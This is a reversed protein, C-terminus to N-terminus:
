RTRTLLAGRPAASNGTGPPRARILQQNNMMIDQFYRNEPGIDEEELGFLAKYEVTGERLHYRESGEIVDRGKARYGLMGKVKEIFPRGGVAISDTWEEERSKMGNAL